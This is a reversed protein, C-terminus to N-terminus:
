RDLEALGNLARDRCLAHLDPWGEGAESVTGGAAAVCLGGLHVCEPPGARAVAEGPLATRRVAIVLALSVGGSAARRSRGTPLCSDAM